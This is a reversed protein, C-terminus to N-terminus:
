DVLLEAFVLVARSGGRGDGMAPPLAALNAPGPCLSQGPNAGRAGLLCSPRAPSAPGSSLSGWSSPVMLVALVSVGGCAPLPEEVEEMTGREYFHLSVSSIVFYSSM